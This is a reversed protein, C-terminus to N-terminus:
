AQELSACAGSLYIGMRELSGISFWRSLQWRSCFNRSGVTDATEQRRVRRSRRATFKRLKRATVRRGRRSEKREHEAVGATSEARGTGSTGRGRGTLQTLQAAETAATAPSSRCSPAATAESDPSSGDGGLRAGGASFVGSLVGGVGGLGSPGEEVSEDELLRERPVWQPAHPAAQTFWPRGFFKLFAGRAGSSLRSACFGGSGPIGQIRAMSKDALSSSDDAEPVGGTDSVEPIDNTGLSEANKRLGSKAQTPRGPLGFNAPLLSRKLRGWLTKGSLDLKSTSTKAAASNKELSGPEESNELAGSLLVEPNSSSSTHRFDESSLPVPVDLANPQTALETRTRPFEPKELGTFEDSGSGSGSSEESESENEFGLYLRRRGRSDRADLAESIYTAVGDRFRTLRDKVLRPFRMASVSGKTSFQQERPPSSNSDVSKENKEHM